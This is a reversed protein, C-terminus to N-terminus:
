NFHLYMLYSLFLFVFFSGYIAFLSIKRKKKFEENSMNYLINCLVNRRRESYYFLLFFNVSFIIILPISLFILDRCQLLMLLYTFPFIIALLVIFISKGAPIQPNRKNKYPTLAYLFLENLYRNDKM